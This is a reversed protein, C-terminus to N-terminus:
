FNRSLLQNHVWVITACLRLSPFFSGWTFIIRRDRAFYHSQSTSLKKRVCIPKKKAEVNNKKSRVVSGRKSTTSLMCNRGATAIIVFFKRICVYVCSDDFVVLYKTVNNRSSDTVEIDVVQEFELNELQKQM